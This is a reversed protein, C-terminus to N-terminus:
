VLSVAYDDIRGSQSCLRRGDLSAAYGDGLSAAFSDSVHLYRERARTQHIKPILLEDNISNIGDDCM